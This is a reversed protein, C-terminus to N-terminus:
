LTNLVSFFIVFMKSLYVKLYVERLDSFTFFGFSNGTRRQEMTTFTFISTKFPLYINMSQAIDLTEFM